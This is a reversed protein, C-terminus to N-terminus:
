KKEAVVAKRITLRYHGFQGADDAAPSHRRAQLGRGGHRRPWAELERPNLFGASDDDEKLKM